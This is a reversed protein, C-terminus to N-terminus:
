LKADINTGDATTVTIVSVMYSNPTIPFNTIIARVDGYKICENPFLSRLENTIDLATFPKSDHVFEYILYNTQHTLETLNM